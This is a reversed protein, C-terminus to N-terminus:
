PPPNMGQHGSHDRKLKTSRGFWSKVKCGLANKSNAIESIFNEQKGNKMKRLHHIQPYVKYTNHTM